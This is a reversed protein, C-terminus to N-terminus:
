GSIKASGKFPPPGLKLKRTKSDPVLTVSKESGELSAKVVCPRVTGSDTQVTWGVNGAYKLAIADGGKVEGFFAKAKEVDTIRGTLLSFKENPAPIKELEIGLEEAWGSLWGNGGSQALVSSLLFTAVLLAYTGLKGSNMSVDLIGAAETEVTVGTEVWVRVAPSV